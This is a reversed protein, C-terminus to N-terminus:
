RGGLEEQLSEITALGQRPFVKGILQRDWYPPNKEDKSPNHFWYRYRDVRIYKPAEPSDQWPDGAMLGNLVAEDQQLLKILFPYM